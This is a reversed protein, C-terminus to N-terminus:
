IVFVPGPRHLSEAVSHQRASRSEYCADSLRRKFIRWAKRFDAYDSKRHHDVRAQALAKVGRYLANKKADAEDPTASVRLLCGADLTVIGLISRAYWFCQATLSKYMPQKQSMISCAVALKAFSMQQEPYLRLAHLLRYHTRSLERPRDMYDRRCPILFSDVAEGGSFLCSVEAPAAREVFICNRLGTQRDYFDVRLVEHMPSEREEYLRVQSIRLRRVLGSCGLFVGVVDCPRLQLVDEARNYRESSQRPHRRSNTARHPPFLFPSSM